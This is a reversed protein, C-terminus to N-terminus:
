LRRVHWVHKNPGEAHQRGQESVHVRRAMHIRWARCRTHHWEQIDQVMTSTEAESDAGLKPLFLAAGSRSMRHATHQLPSSHEHGCTRQAAICEPLLQGEAGEASPQEKAQPTDESRCHGKKNTGCRSSRDTCHDATPM